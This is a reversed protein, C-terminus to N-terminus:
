SSGHFLVTSEGSGLKDEGVSDAASAYMNVGERVIEISM